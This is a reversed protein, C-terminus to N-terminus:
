IRKKRRYRFLLGLVVLAGLGGLAGFLWRPQASSDQTPNLTLVQETTVTYDNLQGTSSDIVETGAPFTVQFTDDPVSLNLRYSVMTFKSVCVPPGSKATDRFEWAKPIWGCTPDAEYENDLVTIGDSFRHAERVVVWDRNPDLWYDSHYGDVGHLIFQECTRGGIVSKVRSPKLTEVRFSRMTPSLSRFARTMPRCNQGKVEFYDTDSTILGQPASKWGIEVQTKRKGDLVTTTEMHRFGDGAWRFGSVEVRVRTDNL